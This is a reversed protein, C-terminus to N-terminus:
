DRFSQLGDILDGLVREWSLQSAIFARGRDGVGAESVSLQMLGDALGDVTPAVLLAAHARELGSAIHIAESVLCPVGLALNELLAISHSEWRSPHVYGDARRLFTDKEPGSVAEGAEVWRDLELSAILQKVSSFGGKYDPGHLQLRPRRGEPIASV